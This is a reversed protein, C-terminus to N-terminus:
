LMCATYGHICKGASHNCENKIKLNFNKSVQQLLLCYLGRAGLGQYPGVADHAHPQHAHREGPRGSGARAGAGDRQGGGRTAGVGRRERLLGPRVQLPPPDM